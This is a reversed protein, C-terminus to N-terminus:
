KSMRRFPNGMDAYWYPELLNENCNKEELKGLKGLEGGM